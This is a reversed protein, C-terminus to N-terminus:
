SMAKKMSVPARKLTSESLPSISKALHGACYSAGEAQRLGCFLHTGDTREDVPWRCQNRTLETIEVLLMDAAIPEPAPKQPKPAPPLSQAAKPRQRNTQRPKRPPKVRVPRTPTKARGSLGLRHVRGLVSNRSRNTGFERNISAMVDLARKGAIWENKLLRDEAPTWASM